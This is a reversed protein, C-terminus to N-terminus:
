KTPKSDTSALISDIARIHAQADRDWDAAMENTDPEAAGALLERAEELARRMQAHTTAQDEVAADYGRKFGAFGAPNFGTYIRDYAKRAADSPEGEVDYGLRHATSIADEKRSYGGSILQGASTEVDFSGRKKVVRAMQQNASM